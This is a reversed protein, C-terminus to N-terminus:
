KVILRENWVENEVNIKLLYTGSPLDAISLQFPNSTINELLILQGASSYLRLTGTNSEEDLFSITFQKSSNNLPNPYLLVGNKKSNEIAVSEIGSYEFRGDHDLQKLRYYNMGSFPSRDIFSYHQQVQITGQGPIFGIPMWKNGDSSKEVEFGANDRETATQWTLLASNDSASVAKFSILEVPLFMEYMLSVEGPNPSNYELSWGAPLTPSISSFTGSISTADLFTIVDGDTPTYGFSINLNGGLVATGNVNIKDYGSCATTGSVEINVAGDNTLGNNFTLCGPSAGPALIGDAANTFMNGSITGIGKLTGSNTATGNLTLVAGNAISLIGNTEISLGKCLGSSNLTVIHSALINADNTSNPIWGNSWTSTANWNGIQFSGIPLDNCNKIDGGIAWGKNLILNARADTSNCYKVNLAGLTRNNPTLPNNKWGILTNDYNTVSIGCNRFMNTLDVNSKLTWNGLNQNFSSAGNFMDSMDIVSAGVNWASLDRNFSTAGAFMQNMILVKSVDWNSLDGNFSTANRFMSSMSVVKGVEWSSLDGNFLIAEYFMAGVNTVNSVDWGSLDGNFTTAAAFMSQMDTVNSVNWASLDGNFSSAEAFMVNMKKVQSVDWSSIDANFSSAGAFMDSMVTVNSVDWSSLGLGTFSTAYFFMFGMDTVNSVDWTSLDGNFSYTRGFLGNMNTINSVDWGSVDSNFSTAYHLMYSLNTAGSLDPVGAGTDINLNSCGYFANEMSTWAIDGWQDISLIKERDGGLNFYIRPFSGRIQITKIGANGTGYDHTVAGTIGLQDYTGDNNWDVDYNYGGGTTPITICTPCGGPNDTKWTSIFATPDPTQSWANNAVFSLIITLFTFEWVNSFFYFNSISNM